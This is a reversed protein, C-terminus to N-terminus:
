SRTGVKRGPGLASNILGVVQAEAQDSLTQKSLSQSSLTMKLEERISKQSPPPLLDTVKTLELASALAYVHHLLVSQRGSEINAISARSMQVRGALQSQTLDLAKRRTAVASGFTGYIDDIAM